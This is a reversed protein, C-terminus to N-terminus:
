VASRRGHLTGLLTCSLAILGAVTRAIHWRWWTDRFEMWNAPLEEARWTIVQSNIPQNALRTILGAAVLCVVAALLLSRLRRDDKARVALSATLVICVAGMAPLLSNFARIMQQQQELYATASLGAPNFGTWIGFMTGVLLSMTLLNIFRVTTTIM